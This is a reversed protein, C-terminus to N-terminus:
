ALLQPSVVRLGVFSLLCFHGCPVGLNQLEDQLRQLDCFGVGQGFQFVVELPREEDHSTTSVSTAWYASSNRKAMM